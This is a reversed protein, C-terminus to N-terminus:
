RGSKTNTASIIAEYIRQHRALGDQYRAHRSMDPQYVRKVPPSLQEIATIKGASEVALLAAGRTSAESAETLNIEKGLVDALIQVWVPSASLAQGSAFISARPAVTEVARAILAFRYAVSEMAARLIEIPRTSMTLGYIAGRANAHWGTSREGLWFPMMTLGHADPEMAELEDEIMESSFDSLLTTRIRHYLNGGDSLAGGVVCRDRDARYCWLESPIREPPPGSYLVRMAGSTGVMLGMRDKSTCGAGINNAAGDGIAPFWSAETLQPWRLAYEDTLKNFIGGPLSLRPLSQPDVGLLELLEEDWECTRQILLGTGSAMSVSTLAEDFLHLAIYDSFSLWRTTSAFAAPEEKQLRLLKAPWYSPHFRCGTRAHFSMEDFQRRLHEAADAARLDAWGLVPTTPKGQEDVGILSHWFCSISVLDIRADADYGIALLEDIVRAVEELLVRGDATGETVLSATSYERRVAAGPIESGHEDFLAARAGSTGVDLSLVIPPRASGKATILDPLPEFGEVVNDIVNSM